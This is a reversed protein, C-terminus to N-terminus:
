EAAPSSIYSILCARLININTHDLVTDRRTRTRGLRYGLKGKRLAAVGVSRPFNVYDSVWANRRKKWVSVSKAGCRRELHLLNPDGRLAKGPFFMMTDGDGVCNLDIVTQYKSAFFHHKRHASSGSMAPEGGDLLVFCVRRRLIPPMSAATELLAVVGSTNANANHRNAPGFLMMVPRLLALVALVLYAIRPDHSLFYAAVGGAAAPILAVVANLIQCLANLFPSCPMQLQPEWSAAPTDYHACILFRATEPDGFVVNRGRGRGPEETVTYGQEELWSQVSARFAQKQQKTRRIPHDSLVDMPTKIM